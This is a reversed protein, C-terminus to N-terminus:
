AVNFNGNSTCIYCDYYSRVYRVSSSSKNVVFLLRTAIKELIYMYCLCVCVCM